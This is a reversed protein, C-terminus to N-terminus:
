RGITKWVKNDRSWIPRHCTRCVAEIRPTTLNYNM